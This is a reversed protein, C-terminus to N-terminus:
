SPHYTINYGDTFINEDVNNLEHAMSNQAGEDLNVNIEKKLVKSRILNGFATFKYLYFFTSAIGLFSLSTGLKAYYDSNNTIDGTTEQNKDHLLAPTSKYRGSEDLEELVQDREERSPTAVVKNEDCELKNNLTVNNCFYDLDLQNPCKDSSGNCCDRKYKDHLGKIYVFYESYIKCLHMDSKIKEKIYSYNEIYDHLDKREKWLNLDINSNYDFHCNYKQSSVTISHEVGFLAQLIHNVIGKVKWESEWKKRVLDTIWFNFYRCREDDNMVDSLIQPLQILNKAFMYCVELFGSYMIELYEHNSCYSVYERKDHYKNNFKNYLERKSSNELIKEGEDM